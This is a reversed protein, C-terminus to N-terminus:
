YDWSASTLPNLRCGIWAVALWFGDTMRLKRLIEMQQNEGGRTRAPASRPDSCASASRCVFPQLDKALEPHRAKPHAVVSATAPWFGDTMRLRRLIEMQQNEGGRTRAPAPRPEPCPSASSCVFLQLDKALEPHRAKSPTKSM